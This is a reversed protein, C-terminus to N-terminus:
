GRRERNRREARVTAAMRPRYWSIEGIGDILADVAADLGSDIWADAMATATGPRIMLSQHDIEVDRAHHDTGVFTIDSDALNVLRLMRLAAAARTPDADAPDANGDIALVVRADHEGMKHALEGFIQEPTERGTVPRGGTLAQHVADHITM